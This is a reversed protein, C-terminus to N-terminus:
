RFAAEGGDLADSFLQPQPRPLHQQQPAHAQYQPQPQPQPQPQTMIPAMPVAPAFPDVPITQKPPSAPLPPLPPLPHYQSAQQPVPVFKNEEFEDDAEDEDEDEDANEVLPDAEDDSPIPSLIPNVTKRDEDVANTLYAQLVDGLPLLTRVAVEIADAVLKEKEGPNTTQMVYVKDYFNKASAVYVQHVFSEIGPLKLKINPRASSIKISSLVKVYTVFVAAMLDDFYPYKATIAATKDKIIATNWGPIAQMEKQFQMLSKRNGVDKLVRVYTYEMFQVVFPSMIEALRLSYERKADLLLPNLNEAM